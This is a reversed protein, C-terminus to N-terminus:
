ANNIQNGFIYRTKKIIKKLFIAQAKCLSGALFVVAASFPLITRYRM